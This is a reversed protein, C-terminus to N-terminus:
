HWLKQKWNKWKYIKSFILILLPQLFLITLLTEFGFVPESHDILIADTHFAQWDNTLIVAAFFNNMFHYGMSLELGDDMRTLIGFFIGTGVYYALIGYGLKAVEPNGLHMLGFLTGSLVIPIIGLPIIRSLSQLLFGRFFIEEATIQLLLLSLSVFLLPIVDAIEGHHEIDIGLYNAITLSIILVCGWMLFSMFFRSWDFTERATFLSLIKRKQIFKMGLLLGGIFTTFPFLRLAFSITSNGESSEIISHGLLAISFDNSLIQGLVFALFAFVITLIYGVPENKDNKWQEFYTM